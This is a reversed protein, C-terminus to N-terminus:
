KLDYAHYGDGTKEFRVPATESIMELVDDPNETLKLRGSCPYHLPQDSDIRINYYRSVKKLIQALDMQTLHLYGEKWTIYDSAKVQEVKALDGNREFRQNPLLKVPKHNRSSVEVKGSVLVVSKEKENKYSNLNFCTGLVCVEMESTKIVFPKHKDPSVEIYIEGDLYIERKSGEFRTPYSVVSGANVWVKSGDGLTLLARKGYPVVLWLQEATQAPKVNGAILDEGVVAEEASSSSLLQDAHFLRTESGTMEGESYALIQELSALEDTQSLGSWVIGASFILAVMAAIGTYIRRNRRNIRIKKEQLLTQELRFTQRVLEEASYGNKRIRLGQMLAVAENLDAEREPAIRIVEQRYRDVEGSYYALVFDKDSVFDVATFESIDRM